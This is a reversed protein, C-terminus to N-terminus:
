CSGLSPFPSSFEGKAFGRLDGDEMERMGDEYRQKTTEFEIEWDADSTGLVRHVSDLMERQSLRFSSVYVGKNGFQKELEEIEMGLLSAVARGCLEWTSTNIKTNGDDYFVAKRASTDIGYLFPVGLSWEYWFSCVLSFHVM